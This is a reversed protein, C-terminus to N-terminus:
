PATVPRIASTVFPASSLAPSATDRHRVMAPTTASHIPSISIAWLAPSMSFSVLPIEGKRRRRNGLIGWPCGASSYMAALTIAFTSPSPQAQVGAPSFAISSSAFSSASRPFGSYRSVSDPSLSVRSRFYACVVAAPLSKWSCPVAPRPLRALM